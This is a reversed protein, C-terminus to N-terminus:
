SRFCGAFLRPWKRAGRLRSIGQGRADIEWVRACGALARSRAPASSRAHLQPADSPLQGDQRPTAGNPHACRGTLSWRTMGSPTPGFSREFFRLWNEGMIADVEGALLRGAGSGGCYQLFTATAASGIPSRRFCLPNAEDLPEKTWRGRRMWQVVEDPQDQCLDSGIGLHEVGMFEATRAVMACFEALTCASGSKLHHPYLSFGFM